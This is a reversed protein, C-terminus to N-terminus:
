GISVSLHFLIKIIYIETPHPNIGALKLYPIFGM